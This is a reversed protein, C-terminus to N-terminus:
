KSNYESALMGYLVCDVIGQNNIDRQRLTGEYRLGAHKMVKGSNSNRPDHMSEIRLVNVAEMFFPILAQLAESAIGQQWWPEGICYGIHVMAIDDRQEVVGINGILEKTEKLEIAWQYYSPQEYQAIWNELVMKTISVDEHPPWRLFKTVNPNSAWNQFMAPADEITFRRLSLRKTELAITGIHKMYNRRVIQWDIVSAMTLLSHVQNLVQGM